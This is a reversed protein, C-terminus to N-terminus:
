KQSKNIKFYAVNGFKWSDAKTFISFTGFFTLIFYVVETQKINLMNNLNM